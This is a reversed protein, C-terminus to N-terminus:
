KPEHPNFGNRDMAMNLKLVNVRKRGWIGLFPSETNRYVMKEVESIDTGRAGAVRRAQLMASEVSIHPDLGSASSTVMDAPIIEDATLKELRRVGAIRDRVQRIFDANSPGFNSAGSGNANYPPDTASPRGHFYEPRTFTQGILASGIIAKDNQLLSGGSQEPFFLGSIGTIFLPYIIGCLVTFIAWILLSTKFLQAKM